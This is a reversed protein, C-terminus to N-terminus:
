VHARGIQYPYHIRRGSPLRVANKETVCMGWPDITKETGQLIHPLSEQFTRWGTVIDHYTDRKVAYRASIISYFDCMPADMKYHFYRRNNESWEKLLYGPAIALQDPSTSVTTAFTVWDAESSIYNDRRAAADDISRFLM